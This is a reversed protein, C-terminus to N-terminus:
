RFRVDVPQGPHMKAAVAPDFHLEIMFVLKSRSERSYIVPPTYEARQSIYSIRGDFPAAVGDVTVGAEQGVRLAGVETEPVFARVKINAPPLLMVVPKGPAVWEGERFLTDFVLGAKPADQKMQALNWEKQRLQDRDQDRTSRARDFDQAAVPGSRFLQEQRKFDAEAMTLAAQTQDRAAEEMTQDLTFLPQGAKVEDGRRVFLHQLTGGLPSSVYVYEGEVYGQVFDDPAKQCGAVILALLAFAALPRRRNM